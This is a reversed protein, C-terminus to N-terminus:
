RLTIYVYSIKNNNNQKNNNDLYKTHIAIEKTTLRKGIESEVKPTIATTMVM